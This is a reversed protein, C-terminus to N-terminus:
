ANSDSSRAPKTPSAVPKTRYVKRKSGDHNRSSITYVPMNAM